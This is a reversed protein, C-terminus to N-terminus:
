DAVQEANHSGYDPDIEGGAECGAFVFMGILFSCIVAIKVSKM